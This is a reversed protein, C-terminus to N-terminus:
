TTAELFGCWARLISRPNGGKSEMTCGVDSTDESRDLGAGGVLTHVLPSFWFCGGYSVPPPFRLVYVHRAIAALNIAPIHVECRKLSILWHGRLILLTTYGMLLEELIRQGGSPLPCSVRVRLRKAHSNEKAETSTVKHAM